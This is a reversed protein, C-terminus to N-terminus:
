ESKPTDKEKDWYLSALKEREQPTGEGRLAKATLMAIAEHRDLQDEVMPRGHIEGETSILRASLDSLGRLLASMAYDARIQTLGGVAAEFTGLPSPPNGPGPGPDNDGNGAVYPPRFQSFQDPIVLSVGPKVYSHGFHWQVRAKLAESPNALVADPNGETNDDGFYVAAEDGFGNEHQLIWAVVAPVRFKREVAKRVNTDLKRKADPGIAMYLKFEASEVAAKYGNSTAAWDPIGSPLLMLSRIAMRAEAVADTAKVEATYRTVLSKALKVLEGLKETFGAVDTVKVDDLANLVDTATETAEADTATADTTAPTTTTSDTM